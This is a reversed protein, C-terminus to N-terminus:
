RAVFLFRANDFDAAINAVRRSDGPMAAPLAHRAAGRM